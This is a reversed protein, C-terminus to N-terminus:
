KNMTIPETNATNMPIMYWKRPTPWAESNVCLKHSHSRYTQFCSTNSTEWPGKIGNTESKRMQHFRLFIRAAGICTLQHASAQTKKARRKCQIPMRPAWGLSETTENIKKNHDNPQRKIPQCRARYRIKGAEMRSRM